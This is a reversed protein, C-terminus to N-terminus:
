LFPNTVTVADAKKVLRELLKTSWYSNSNLLLNKVKSQLRMPKYFSLEWDDMDLILPRRSLARKLLGLGFSTALPRQAYIVDGSLRGLLGMLHRAYGFPSRGVATTKLPIDMGSLPEWVGEGLCPGAIEVDFRQQLVKALIYARGLTNGSADATIVSVRM